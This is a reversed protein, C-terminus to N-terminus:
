PIVEYDCNAATLADIEATVRGFIFPDGSKLRVVTRDTRAYEVLIADIESQPMSPQGGRKGVNVLVCTEPVLELLGRDVLADYILVEAQTLIQQARLTLFSVDGPGAGVIYVKSM